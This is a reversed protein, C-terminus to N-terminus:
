SEHCVEAFARFLIEETMPTEIWVPVKEFSLLELAGFIDAEIDYYHALADWESEALADHKPDLVLFELTKKASEAKLTLITLQTLLINQCEGRWAEFLLRRERRQRV